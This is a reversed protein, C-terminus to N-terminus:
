DLSILNWINEDLPLFHPSHVIVKGNEVAIQDEPLDSAFWLMALYYVSSSCKGKADRVICFGKADSGGGPNFALDFKDRYVLVEYEDGIQMRRDVPMYRVVLLATLFLGSWLLVKFVRRIVTKM